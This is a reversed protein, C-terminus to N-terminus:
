ASSPMRSLVLHSSNLRTGESRKGAPIDLDVHQLAQVAGFSKTIDRLSLLMPASSDVGSGVPETRGSESSDLIDNEPTSEM